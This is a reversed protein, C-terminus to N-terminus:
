YSISKHENANKELNLMTIIPYEDSVALAYDDKAILAFFETKSLETAEPATMDFIKEKGYLSILLRGALINLAEKLADLYKEKPCDPNIDEGLMNASLEKCLEVPAMIIIEGSDVGSFTLRSRVFNFKHFNIDDLRDAPEPFIFTARELVKCTISNLQEKINQLNM